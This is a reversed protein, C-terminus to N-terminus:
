HMLSLGMGQPIHLGACDRYLMDLMEYSVSVVKTASLMKTQCKEAIATSPFVMPPCFMLKEEPDYIEIEKLVHPPTTIGSDV